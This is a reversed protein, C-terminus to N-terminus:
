SHCLDPQVVRGVGEELLRLTEVIVGPDFQWGSRDELEQRARDLSYPEKYSRPSLMTDLADAVCLIRAGLPIQDGKLGAPYGTGDYKEHHHLIIPKEESLGKVEKLIDIATQPHRKIIEFEEDTLPGPKSLISDPVGIKGVDHLLAASRLTQLAGEGLRMRKGIAEAFDAVSQSHTRTYPDRADVAAVLAATSECYRPQHRRTSETAAVAEKGIGESVTQEQKDTDLRSKWVETGGPHEKKAFQLAIRAHQLLQYGNKPSAPWAQAIGAAIHIPYGIGRGCHAALQATRRCRDAFGRSEDVGYGPLVVAFRDRFIRSAQDQQRMLSLLLDAFWKNLTERDYAASPTASAEASPELILVSLAEGNQKCEESLTAVASLFSAHGRTSEDSVFRGFSSYRSQIRSVGM